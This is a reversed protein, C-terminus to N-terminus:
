DKKIKPLIFSEIFSASRFSDYATQIDIEESTDPYRAIVSFDNLDNVASLIETFDADIPVIGLM